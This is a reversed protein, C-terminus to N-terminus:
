RSVTGRGNSSGVSGVLGAFRARAVQKPSSICLRSIDTLIYVASSVDFIDWYRAHGRQEQHACAAGPGRPRDASRLIAGAPRAHRPLQMPQVLSDLPSKILLCSLTRAAGVYHAANVGLLARLIPKLRRGDAGPRGDAARLYCVRRGAHNGGRETVSTLRVVVCCM